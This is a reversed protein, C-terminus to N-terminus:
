SGRFCNERRGDTTVSYDRKYYDFHSINPVAGEGGKKCIHLWDQDARNFIYAVVKSSTSEWDM